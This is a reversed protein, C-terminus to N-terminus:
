PEIMDAIFHLFGSLDYYGELLGMHECENPIFIEQGQLMPYKSLLRLHETLEKLFFFNQESDYEIQEIKEIFKARQIATSSQIEFATNIM